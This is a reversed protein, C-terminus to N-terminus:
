LLNKLGATYLKARNKGTECVRIADEEKPVDIELRFMM